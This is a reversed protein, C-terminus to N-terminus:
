KVAAGGEDTTVDVPEIAETAEVRDELNVWHGWVNTHM